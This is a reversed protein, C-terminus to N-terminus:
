RGSGAMTQALEYNTMGVSYGPRGGDVAVLIVDGDALQGVAPARQRAARADAADFNEGTHFVPKGNKVLLPGAASARERRRGLGVPPDAAVTVTGDRRRRPRSSRPRSGTAVLVAGDAPIPTAGGSAQATVPATLDTDVAAAPFPELVVETANPSTPTTPAGRPRSSSSRAGLAAAPQRRRAAPAPRHGEVHRRVRVAGVHM